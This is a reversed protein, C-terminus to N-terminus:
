DGSGKSAVPMADLSSVASSRAAAFAPSVVPGWPAIFGFLETLQQAEAPAIEQLHLNVAGLYYASFYLRLVFWLTFAALAPTILLKEDSSPQVGGQLEFGRRFSFHCTDGPYCVRTPLRLSLLLWLLLLLAYAGFVSRLPM